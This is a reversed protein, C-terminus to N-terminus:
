AVEVLASGIVELGIFLLLSTDRVAVTRAHPTVRPRIVLILATEYEALTGLGLM